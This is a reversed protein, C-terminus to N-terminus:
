RRNYRRQMVIVFISAIVGGVMDCILDSISDPISALQVSKILFQVLYEYYEWGLGIIFAILALTIFLEKSDLGQLQRSRYLFAATVFVTFMGGITHMLMDFWSISVYWYFTNAIWNVVFLFIGTTAATLVLRKYM